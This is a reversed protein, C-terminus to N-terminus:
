TDTNTIEARGYKSRARKQCKAM